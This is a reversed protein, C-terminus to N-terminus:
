RASSPRHRLPLDRLTRAAADGRGHGAPGRLPRGPHPHHPRPRSPGRRRRPRALRAAPVPRRPRPGADALERGFAAALEITSARGSEPEPERAIEPTTAGAHHAILRCAAYPHAMLVLARTRRVDRTDTDGVDALAEALYDIMADIRAIDAASAQAFLQRLGAPHPRRGVSVYRREEAARRREEHGDPDAAVVLGDIVTQARAFVVGELAAAVRGEIGAVQEASLVRTAAAAKRAKWVDVVGTMVAAWVRPLRHRIELADRLLMAATTTSVQLSMGLEVAAFEAVAPTGEAGLQVARERYGTAGVRAPHVAVAEDPSTGESRDPRYGALVPMAPTAPHLDAWAAVSALQGAQARRVRGVSAVLADSCAVADAAHADVDVPPIM